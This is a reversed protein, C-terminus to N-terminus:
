QYLTFCESNVTLLTWSLLLNVLKVVVIICKFICYQILSYSIYRNCKEKKNHVTTRIWSSQHGDGQVTTRATPCQDPRLSNNKISTTKRATSFLEQHKNNMCGDQQEQLRTTQEQPRKPEQPRTRVPQNDRQQTSSAKLIYWYM